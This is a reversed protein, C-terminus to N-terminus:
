ASPAKTRATRCCSRSCLSGHGAWVRAELREHGAQEGPIGPEGVILPGLRLVAQLRNIALPRRCKRARRWPTARALRTWVQGHHGVQICLEKLSTIPKLKEVEVLQLENRSLDLIELAPCCSSFNGPLEQAM